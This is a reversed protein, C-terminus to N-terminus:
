GGLVLILLGSIVLGIGLIEILHTRERFMLVSAVFSFVLEIQGLASVYAANQLTYASFWCASSLAGALGSLFGVRWAKAVRALEGKDRVWLFIGMCLTQLVTAFVLTVGASVLFYSNELSLSAARYCVVAIAYGTGIGIGILAARGTWATLLSRISVQGSVMSLVMVGFLSLFIGVAASGSLTDGLILFGFLATQVTETKSYTAGVTFNRKSFLHVLLTAGILQAIGGIVVLILFRFNIAPLDAQNVELVILLYVLACPLGYFFRCYSAGSTKLGHRLHKQLASRLNQLFAAAVTLAIWLEM